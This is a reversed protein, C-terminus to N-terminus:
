LSHLFTLFHSAAGGVFNVVLRWQHGAYYLNFIKVSVCLLTKSATTFQTTTIIDYVSFPHLYM